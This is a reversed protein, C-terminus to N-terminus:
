LQISEFLVILFYMPVPWVYIVKFLYDYYYKFKLNVLKMPFWTSMHNFFPWGDWIHPFFFNYFLILIKGQSVINTVWGTILHYMIIICRIFENKMNLYIFVRDGSYHARGPGSIDEAYHWKDIRKWTVWTIFKVNNEYKDKKGLSLCWGDSLTLLPICWLFTKQRLMATTQKYM